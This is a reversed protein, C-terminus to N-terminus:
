WNVLYEPNNERLATATGTYSDPFEQELREAVVALAQRRLANIQEETARMVEAYLAQARAVERQWDQFWTSSEWGEDLGHRANDGAETRAEQRILVLGNAFAQEWTEATHLEERRAEERERRRRAQQEDQQQRQRAAQYREEELDRQLQENERRLAIPDNSTYPWPM